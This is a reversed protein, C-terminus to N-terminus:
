NRRTITSCLTYINYIIINHKSKTNRYTFPHVLIHYSVVSQCWLILKALDPCYFKLSDVSLDNNNLIILAELIDEENMNDLDLNLVKKKLNMIM